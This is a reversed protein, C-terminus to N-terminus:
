HQQANHDVLPKQQKVFQVTKGYNIGGQMISSCQCLSAAWSSFGAEAESSQCWLSSM